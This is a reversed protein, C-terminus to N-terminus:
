ILLLWYDNPNFYENERKQNSWQIRQRDNGLLSLNYIEFFVLITDKIKLLEKVCKEAFSMKVEM